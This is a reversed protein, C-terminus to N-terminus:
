REQVVAPHGVAREGGPGARVGDGDDHAEGCLENRGVVRDHPPQALRWLQQRRKPSALKVWLCQGLWRFMARMLSCILLCLITGCLGIFSLFIFSRRDACRSLPRNARSPLPGRVGQSRCDGHRTPCPGRGFCCLADSQDFLASSPCTYANNPAHTCAIHAIRLLFAIHVCFYAYAHRHLPLHSYYPLHASCVFSVLSLFARCTRDHSTCPDPPRSRSRRLRPPRQRRPDITAYHTFSLLYSCACKEQNPLMLDALKCVGRMRYCNQM